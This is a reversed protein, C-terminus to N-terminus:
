LKDSKGKEELSKLMEEKTDFMRCQRAHCVQYKGSKIILCGPLPFELPEKTYVVPFHLRMFVALNYFDSIYPTLYEDDHSEEGIIMGSREIGMKAFGVPSPVPHDFSSAPINGLQTKISSYWTGQKNFSLVMERLGRIISIDEELFTALVLLSAYNELIDLYQIDGKFSLNQLRGSELWQLRYRNYIKMARVRYREDGLAMSAYYFSLGILCNVWTIIKEDRFPKPKENRMKILADELLGNNKFSNKVVHYKNNYPVFNFGSDSKFGSIEERSFLYTDGEVGRTDADLATYYLGSEDEQTSIYSITKELVQRFEKRGLAMYGLSYNIVHMAQDYMMKEFHPINWEQDTCYRFFGGAIPDNLGSLAMKDLTELAMVRSEGDGKILYHFLLFLLTSHAPFKQNGKFGKNNEDYYRYIDSTLEKSATKQINNCPIYGSIRDNNNNYFDLAYELARIFDDEPLYTFAFFPKRDPSLMVNLPWGGQGYNEMMFSMLYYDLDPREERDLKICVFGSNLYRATRVSSFTNKAMVHCWHCTSYGSSVLIPKNNIKAFDLVESNWEQWNVPNDSHQKLYPSLAKDLNNRSFDM